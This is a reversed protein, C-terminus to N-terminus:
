KIADGGEPPGVLGRRAAEIERELAEVDSEVAGLQDERQMIRAAAVRLESLQLEYDDETLDGARYDGELDAIQRYVRMRAVRLRELVPDGALTYGHRNLFPYVLVALSILVLATGLLTGM